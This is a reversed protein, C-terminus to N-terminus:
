CVLRSTRSSDDCGCYCWCSCICTIYITTLICIWYNCSLLRRRVPLTVSKAWFNSNLVPHQQNASSYSFSPFPQPYPCSNSDTISKLQRTIAASSGDDKLTCFSPLCGYLSFSDERKQSLRSLRRRFRVGLLGKWFDKFVSLTAGELTVLEIPLFTQLADRGHSRGFAIRTVAGGRFANSLFVCAFSLLPPFLNLRVAWKEFSSVSWPKVKLNLTWFHQLKGNSVALRRFLELWSHPLSQCFRM